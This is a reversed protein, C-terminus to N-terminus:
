IGNSSPSCASCTCSCGASPPSTDFPETASRFAVGSTDLEELLTVLDRIRRSFRDVRHVLLVDFEGARAADLARRLDPRQITAGSADDSYHAVIAWGHQSAVYSDLKSEQAEITYPQNEEDTSRRTYIAIRVHTPRLTHKTPRPKASMTSRREPIPAEPSAWLEGHIRRNPSPRQGGAVPREDPALTTREHAGEGPTPTAVALRTPIFGCLSHSFTM